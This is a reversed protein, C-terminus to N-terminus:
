SGAGVSEILDRAEISGRHGPALRFVVLTGPAIQRSGDAIATCHFALEYGEVRVTGLGVAGDFTM